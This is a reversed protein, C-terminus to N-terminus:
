NIVSPLRGKLVAPEIFHSLSINGCVKYHKECLIILTYLLAPQETEHQRRPRRNSASFQSIRHIDFSVPAERETGEERKCLWRDATFVMLQWLSVRVADLSGPVQKVGPINMCVEVLSCLAGAFGSLWGSSCVLLSLGVPDDPIFTSVACEQLGCAHQFM